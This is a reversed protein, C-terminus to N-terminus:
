EHGTHSRCAASEIPPRKRQYGMRQKCEVGGGDAVYLVGRREGEECVHRHKKVGGLLM